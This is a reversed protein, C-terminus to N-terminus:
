DYFLIIGDSDSWKRYRGFLSLVCIEENWKDNKAIVTHFPSYSTSIIIFINHDSVHM